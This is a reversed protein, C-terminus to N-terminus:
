LKHHIYYCPQQICRQVAIVVTVAEVLGLTMRYWAMNMKDTVTACDTMADVPLLSVM